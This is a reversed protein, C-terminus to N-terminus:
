KFLGDETVLRFAYPLRLCAAIKARNRPLDILKKPKVEVIVQEGNMLTVLFDPIYIATYGNFEYEVRMPEYRFSKVLPDAELIEVYRSEYSSKTTFQGGKITICKQGHGRTTLSLRGEVMARCAAESSIKRGEPSRRRAINAEKARQGADSELWKKFKDYGTEAYSASRRAINEDTLKRGYQSNKEGSAAERLKQKTADSKLRGTSTESLKQKVEPRAGIAKSAKRRKIAVDESTQILGLIALRRWVAMDDVGLFNALEKITKQRFHQRLCEDEAVSWKRSLASSLKARTEASKVHKAPQVGLKRARTGIAKGSISPLHQRAFDSITMSPLHQRILDDYQVWDIKFGSPM